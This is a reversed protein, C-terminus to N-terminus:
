RRHGGQNGPTSPAAFRALPASRTFGSGPALGQAQASLGPTFGNFGVVTGATAGRPLVPQILRTGRRGYAGAYPYYVPAYCNIDDRTACADQSTGLSPMGPVYRPTGTEYARPWFEGRERARHVMELTARDPSYVSLRDQVISVDKPNSSKAPARDSYNTGGREDVWRYLEARATVTALTSLVAFLATSFILTPARM